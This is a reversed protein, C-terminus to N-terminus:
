NEEGVLGEKNAWVFSVVEEESSDLCKIFIGRTATIIRYLPLCSLTIMKDGWFQIDRLGLIGHSEARDGGRQPLWSM